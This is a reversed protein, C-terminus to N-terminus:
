SNKDLVALSSKFLIVIMIVSVFCELLTFLLIELAVEGDEFIIGLESAVNFVGFLNLLMPISLLPPLIIFHYRRIITM